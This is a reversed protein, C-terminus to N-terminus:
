RCTGRELVVLLGEVDRGKQRRLVSSEMRRVVFGFSDSVSRLYRVPSPPTHSVDIM